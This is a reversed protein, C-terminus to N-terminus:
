MEERYSEAMYFVEGFSTQICQERLYNVVSNILLLKAIESIVFNRLGMKFNGTKM